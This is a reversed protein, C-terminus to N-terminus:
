LADSGYGGAARDSVGSCRRACSDPILACLRHTSCSRADPPCRDWAVWTARCRPTVEEGKHFKDSNKGEFPRSRFCFTLASRGLDLERRPPTNPHAIRDLQPLALPPIHRTELQFGRLRSAQPATQSHGHSPHHQGQRRHRCMQRALARPLAIARPIQPQRRHQAALDGYAGLARCIPKAGRAPATLRCAIRAPMHALPTQHQFIRTQASQALRKIM